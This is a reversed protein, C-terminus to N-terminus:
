KRTDAVLKGFREVAESPGYTSFEFIPRLEIECEGGSRCPSDVQLFRKGWEIAEAKSAFQLMVFGAILEKTEAFPGDIVMRKSGSFRIRASKSSPELGDASLFVGSKVGEELFAGMAALSPRDPLIGAESAKNARVLAVYRVSGPKRPAPATPFPAEKEPGGDPKDTRADPLYSLPVISRLEVEGEQLPARRAWAIAEEKSKAEILCFGAILEKTEAFPGDMVEFRGKAYRVRVGKASPELREAGLWAGAKVLEETYDAMRALTNEDPLVGAESDKSARVLMVFRM